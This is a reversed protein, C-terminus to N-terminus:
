FERSQESLDKLLELAQLPTITDTDIQKIKDLLEARPDGFLWLQQAESETPKSARSQHSQAAFGQELQALVERSRTLVSPPVGALQAVHIGYSKDTRGPSIRYLFVVQDQWERVAVNCNVVGPVM